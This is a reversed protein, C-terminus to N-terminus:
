AYAGAADLPVHVVTANPPLQAATANAWGPDHEVSVVRAVRAAWWLTSAGCGFEFVTLDKRVRRTLFEIASYTMWPIPQGNVDVSRNERRSRVWGCDRLAPILEGATAPDPSALKWALSRLFGMM